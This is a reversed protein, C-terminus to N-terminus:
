QVQDLFEVLKIVFVYTDHILGFYEVTFILINIVFGNDLILSKYEPLEFLKVISSVMKIRITVIFIKLGIFCYILPM